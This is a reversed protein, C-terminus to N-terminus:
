SGSKGATGGRAAASAENRAIRRNVFNTAETRPQSVGRAVNRRTRAETLRQQNARTYVQARPM